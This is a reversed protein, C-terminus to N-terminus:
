KIRHLIPPNKRSDNLDNTPPKKAIAQNPKQYLPINTDEEETKIKKNYM